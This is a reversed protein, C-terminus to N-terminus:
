RAFSLAKELQNIATDVAEIAKAKHGRFDTAAEKMSTRAVRLENLAHHVHPYNKYSKYADKAPRVYVPDVGVARLAKDVQEIAYDLAELAKAKHGGFDTGAEKLEKRAEKMEGLAAVMHPHDAANVSSAVALVVCVAGIAIFSRRHLM